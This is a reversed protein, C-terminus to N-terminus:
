TEPNTANAKPKGQMAMRNRLLTEKDLDKYNGEWIHDYQVPKQKPWQDTKIKNM